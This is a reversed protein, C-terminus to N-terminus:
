KKLSRSSVIAQNVEKQHCWSIVLRMLGYCVNVEEFFNAGM